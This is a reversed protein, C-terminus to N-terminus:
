RILQASLAVIILALSLCLWALPARSSGLRIMCAVLVALVVYKIGRLLNTTEDGLSGAASAGTVIVLAGSGVVLALILWGILPLRLPYGPLPWAAAKAAQLLQEAPSGAYERWTAATVLAWFLLYGVLLVAGVLHAYIAIFTLNM